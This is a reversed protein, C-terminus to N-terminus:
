DEQTTTPRFRDAHACDMFHNRRLEVGNDRAKQLADGGLVWARVVKPDAAHRHLLVNGDEHPDVTIPAVRDNVTLAGVIQTGCAACPRREGAQLASM